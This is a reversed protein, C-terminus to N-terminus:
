KQHNSDYVMAHFSRGHPSHVPHDEIWRDGNWEWTDSLDYSQRTGADLKTSGGFLIMHATKTDFVMRTATRGTPAAAFVAPAVLFAACAIFNIRHRTFVSMRSSAEIHLHQHRNIQSPEFGAGSFLIGNERRRDAFLFSVRM